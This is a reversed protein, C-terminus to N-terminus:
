AAILRSPPRLPSPAPARVSAGSDSRLDTASSTGLDAVRVLVANGPKARAGPRTHPGHAGGRMRVAPKDAVACVFMSVYTVEPRAADSRPGSIARAFDPWLLM